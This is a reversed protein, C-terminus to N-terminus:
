GDLDTLLSDLLDVLAASAVRESRFVMALGWIQRRQRRIVDQATMLESALRMTVLVEPDVSVAM